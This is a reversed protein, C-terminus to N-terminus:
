NKRTKRQFIRIANELRLLAEAIVHKDAV